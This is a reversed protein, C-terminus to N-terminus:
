GDTALRAAAQGAVRTITARDTATGNFNVGYLIGVVNDRRLAVWFATASTKAGTADTVTLDGTMAFSSVGSVEVALPHLTGETTGGDPNQTKLSTCGEFARRLSTIVDEAEDGDRYGTIREGLVSLSADAFTRDVAAVSTTRTEVQAIGCTDPPAPTPHVDSLQWGDGLDTAVILKKELERALQERSQAAVQSADRDSPLSVAVLGAAVLLAAAVGSLAALRRRKRFRVFASAGDVTGATGALDAAAAELRDDITM